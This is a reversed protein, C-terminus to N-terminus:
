VEEHRFALVININHQFIIFQIQTPKFTCWKPNFELSLFRREILFILIFNINKFTLDNFMGRLHLNASPLYAFRIKFLFLSDIECLSVGERGSLGKVKRNIMRFM